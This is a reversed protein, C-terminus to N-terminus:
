GLAPLYVAVTTGNGEESRVLIQGDHKKIIAMTTALGLGMGKQSGREKTSFYPDFIQNMNQTSIGVGTDRVVIEVRNRGDLPLDMGQGAQLNEATVTLIGGEMMADLANEFVNHIADQLLDENGDILWLDGTLDRECHITDSQAQDTEKELLQRLDYPQKPWYGGKSLTLMASSLQAAQESAQEVDSLIPALAAGKATLARAHSVGGLIVQLLNNFDHALGGALVSFGEFKKSELVRQEMKRRKTVDKSMFVFGNLSGDTNLLATVSSEIYYVEGEHQRTFAFNYVGKERVIEMTKEFGSRGVNEEEHIGLVTCGLVDEVKRGFIREAAPNFYKIQLDTDTVVIALDKSSRLVNSILVSQEVIKRTREEVQQELNQSYQQLATDKEQVADAMANFHESLLGFEDKVGLKIRSQLDGSSIQKTAQILHQVPQLIKGTFFIIVAVGAVLSAVFIFFFRGALQNQVATLEKQSHSLLMSGAMNEQMLPLREASLFYDQGLFYAEMVQGPNALLIEYELFPIPLTTIRQSNRHLTTSIISRERVLSVEIHSNKQIHDVFSNNLAYGALVYVPEGTVPHSFAAASYLIFSGQDQVIATVTEKGRRIDVVFDFALLSDGSSNPDHGRALVRGDHDLLTIIDSTNLKMLDGLRLALAETGDVSLSKLLERDAAVSRATILSAQEVFKLFNNTVNRTSQFEQFLLHRFQKEAAQYSFIGSTAIVSALLLIYAAALKFRFQRYFPVSIM